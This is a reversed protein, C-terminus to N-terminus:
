LPLSLIGLLNANETYFRNCPELGRVTLDHGSSLDLTPHKVSQAVWAGRCISNKLVNCIARYVECAESSGTSM